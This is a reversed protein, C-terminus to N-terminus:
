PSASDGWEDDDKWERLKRKDVRRWQEESKKMNRM